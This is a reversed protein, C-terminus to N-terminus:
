IFDFLEDIEADSYSSNIEGSKINDSNNIVHPNQLAQLLLDVSERLGEVEKILRINPDVMEVPQKDSTCRSYEILKLLDESKCRTYDKKYKELCAKQLNHEKILAYIEKRNMAGSRIKKNPITLMFVLENTTQGKYPIDHPLVSDNNILETKSVGEYFVMDQYDINASDLDRKLEELTTASSMIVSKEQNKTSVITIKRAKM